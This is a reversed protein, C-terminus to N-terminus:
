AHLNKSMTNKSKKSKALPAKQRKVQKEKREDWVKRVIDVISECKKNPNKKLRAERAKVFKNTDKEIMAFIEPLTMNKTSEYFRRKQEWTLQLARELEKRSM